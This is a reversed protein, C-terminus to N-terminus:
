GMKKFRNITRTRSNQTMDGHLASAKIDKHYLDDSLKDALRKTATFIIAQNVNDQSL